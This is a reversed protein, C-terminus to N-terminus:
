SRATSPVRAASATTSCARWRDPSSAETLDAAYGDAYASRWAAAPGSSTSTRPTAAPSCTRAPRDDPVPRRGPLEDRVDVGPHAAEFQAAVDDWVRIQGRRALGDRHAAGPGAALRAAAPACPSRRRPSPRHRAAGRQRDSRRDHAEEKSRGPGRGAPVDDRDPRVLDHGPRRRVRPRAGSAAPGPVAAARGRGDTWPRDAALWTRWPASPRGCGARVGRAVAAGRRDARPERGPRAAPARGGGAAPGRARGAGRGGRVRRGRDLRFAFAELAGASSPRTTRPSARRASTTRSCRSRRWTRTAWSTACARAALEREPDYGSPTACTTPSRRSRSRRRSSCSWATPSSAADRRALPAPRTGPVPRHAARLGDGRRQGPLQGLLDAPRNTPARSRRPMPSTSPRRASPAAPGSCTSGRTSARGSACSTRSPAAHGCYVTPCVILRECRARPRRVRRTSSTRRARDALDAFAARDEAHQLERPIDDLLLGFDDVGLAAVSRSSPARARRSGRRGLLPDVARALHLVRLTMDHRRCREVLERSARGARRRRVACALRAAGAPRGQPRVRVHEHGPRGLFGILDLRQEHTWPRGYFGEIVGRIAFPSRARTATM